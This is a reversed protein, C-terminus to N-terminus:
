REAIPRPTGISTTRIGAVSKRDRSRFLINSCRNASSIAIFAAFSIKPHYTGIITKFGLRDNKQPM